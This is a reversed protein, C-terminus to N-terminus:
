RGEEAKALVAEVTHALGTPMTDITEQTVSDWLEGLAAVLEDHLAHKRCLTIGNPFRTKCDQCIVTPAHKM